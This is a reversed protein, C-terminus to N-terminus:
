LNPDPPLGRRAREEQILDKVDRLKPKGDVMAYFRSIKHYRHRCNPHLPICPIWSAVKRGYNTKGAWVYKEETTYNLDTPPKELVTFEKGELHLKCYKCSNAVPPVIVKDGESCGALFADNSAMALETIAVRRWDRNQEGFKDFLEQALRQNGWREKQARIVLQKIEARHRATVETIKDATSAESHKIALEERPTLPALEYTKPQEGKMAKFTVKMTEFTAKKITEPIKDILVGTTKLLEQDAKDRIKAILGARLTFHEALNAYKPLRSNLLKDIRALQGKTWASGEKVKALFKDRAKKSAEIIDQLGHKAKNKSKILDNSRYEIYDAGLSKEIDIGETTLGLAIFLDAMTQTWPEILSLYFEEEVHALPEEDNLAWINSESTARIPLKPLNMARQITALIDRRQDEPLDLLAKPLSINIKKAM